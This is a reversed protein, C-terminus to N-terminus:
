GFSPEMRDRPATARKSRSPARHRSSGTWMGGASTNGSFAAALDEQSKWQGFLKGGTILREVGRRIERPIATPKHSAWPTGPLPMFAHLHIRAGQGALFEMFALTERMQDGTEGPLGLMFDVVPQMGAALILSCAESVHEPTHGRRMRELMAPSGSQAGLVMRTNNCHRRILRLAEPTVCEPRVESPFTGFFIRGHAPLVSRIGTLLADIRELCLTRGDVSGYALANPTIFRIDSRGSAVMRKAADVVLEVPRHRMHHGKLVPTQCYRCRSPCGRSIEIPGFRGSAIPHCPLEGLPARPAKGTFRVKGNVSVYFGPSTFSDLTGDRRLFEVLRPFAIEGEAICVADFGLALSAKPIGAVHPGGGVLVLRHRERHGELRELEARLRGLQASLISYAVLVRGHHELLPELQQFFPASGAERSLILPPVPRLGAAELGAELALFSYRNARRVRFVVALPAKM